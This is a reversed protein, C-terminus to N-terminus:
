TNPKEHLFKAGPDGLMWSRCSPRGVADGWEEGEELTNRKELSSRQQGAEVETRCVGRGLPGCIIQNM